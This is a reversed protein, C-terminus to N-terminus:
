TMATPVSSECPEPLILLFWAQAEGHNFKVVFLLGNEVRCFRLTQLGPSTLMAM